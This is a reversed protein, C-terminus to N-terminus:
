AASPVEAPPPAPTSDPSSSDGSGQSQLKQLRVTLWVCGGIALAVGVVKRLRRKPPPPEPRRLASAANRVSTAAKRVNRYLLKDDAAQSRKRRARGYAGRVGLAANRLQEQVFEDELLRQLYPLASETKRTKAM